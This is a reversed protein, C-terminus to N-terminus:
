RLPRPGVPECRRPFFRAVAIRSADLLSALRQINDPREKVHIIIIFPYAPPKTGNRHVSTQM